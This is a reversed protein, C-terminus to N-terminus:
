FAPCGEVEYRLNGVVGGLQTMTVTSAGAGKLADTVQVTVDTFIKTHSANWRSQVNQVRGVLIDSSVTTLERTDLHVVQSARAPLAVLALLIGAHGLRRLM